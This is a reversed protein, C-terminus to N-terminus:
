KKRFMRKLKKLPFLIYYGIKWTLSKRLKMEAEYVANEIDSKTIVGEQEAYMIIQHPITLKLDNTAIAINYVPLFSHNVGNEEVFLPKRYTSENEDLAIISGGFNRQSFFISKKFYRSILNKFEEYYLEKVHFENKYKPVDSYYYKDPSSIILIGAPKLIRKIEEMMKNHNEIHEITEFSVAVDISQSPLPIDTADGQIFELNNLLYKNKAHEIAELSIDVGIVKEAYRALINSGYGEGSAIDLVKKGSLEIQNVLFYYRNLHELESFNKSGPILREGTNKM